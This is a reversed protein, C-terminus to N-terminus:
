VYFSYGNNNLWKKFEEEYNDTYDLFGLIKSDDEFGFGSTIVFLGGVSICHLTVLMNHEEDYLGLVYNTCYIDM